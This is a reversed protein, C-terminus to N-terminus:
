FLGTKGIKDITSREACMIRFCDGYGGALRDPSFSCTAPLKYAQSYDGEKLYRYGRDLSIIADLDLTKGDIHLKIPEVVKFTVGIGDLEPGFSFSSNDGTPDNIADSVKVIKSVSTGGQTYSMEIAGEVDYSTRITDPQPELKTFDPNKEPYFVDIFVNKLTEGNMFRDYQQKSLYASYACEGASSFWDAFDDYTKFVTTPFVNEPKFWGKYIVFVLEFTKSGDKYQCTIGDTGVLQIDTIEHAESDYGSYPGNTASLEKLFKPQNFWFKSYPYINCDADSSGVSEKHDGPDIIQEYDEGDLKYKFKPYGSLVRDTYKEFQNKWHLFHEDDKYVPEFTLSPWGLPTIDSLYNYLYPSEFNSREWSYVPYDEFYSEDSSPPTTPDTDDSSGTDGKSPNDPKPKPKDPAPDDTNKPRRYLKIPKFIM